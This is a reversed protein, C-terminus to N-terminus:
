TMSGLGNPAFSGVPSTYPYGNVAYTPHFGRTPSIDYASDSADSYYNAQSHTITDVDSWPFRHGSAGGRSAKESEAETPLRYGADWKVWTSQLDTRGARYVVTRAANTYYAPVRGEKESRANCWKVADYWNVTHVPHNAAKGSGTNNFSYNHSTAWAYVEDWFAKTVEFKDMYFGSVQVVHVPREPSWGETLQAGM